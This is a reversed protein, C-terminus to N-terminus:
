STPLVIMGMKYLLFSTQPTVADTPAPIPAEPTPASGLRQFWPGPSDQRRGAAEPTGFDGIQIPLPLAREWAGRGTHLHPSTKM